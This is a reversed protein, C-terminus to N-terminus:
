PGCPREELRLSVADSDGERARGQAQRRAGSRKFSIGEGGTYGIDCSSVGLDYVRRYKGAFVGV